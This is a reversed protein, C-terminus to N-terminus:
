HLGLTLQYKHWRTTLILKKLKPFDKLIELNNLHNIGRLELETLNSLNVIGSIDINNKLSLNLSTLKPFNVLFELDSIGTIYQLNLSTLQSYNILLEIKDIYKEQKEPIKKINKKLISKHLKSEEPAHTILLILVYDLYPQAPYTGTFFDNRLLNGNGNIKCGELLFEFLDPQNLSRLLEIGIDIQGYDRQTLFKKIKSLSKKDM